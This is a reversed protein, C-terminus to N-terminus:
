SVGVPGQRVRMPNHQADASLVERDHAVDIGWVILVISPIRHQLRMDPIRLASSCFVWLVGVRHRGSATEALLELVLECALGSHLCSSGIRKSEGAVLRVQWFCASQWQRVQWFTVPLAKEELRRTGM